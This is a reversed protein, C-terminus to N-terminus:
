PHNALAWGSREVFVEGKLTVQSAAAHLPSALLAALVILLARM